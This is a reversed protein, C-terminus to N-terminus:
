NQNSDMGNHTQWVVLESSSVYLKVSTLLGKQVCRPFIHFIIPILLSQHRPHKLDRTFISMCPCLSHILNWSFMSFQLFICYLQCPVLQLNPPSHSENSQQGEKLPSSSCGPVLGWADPGAREREATQLKVKLECKIVRAAMPQYIGAMHSGEEGRAGDQLVFLLIDTSHCHHWRSRGYAWYRKGNASCMSGVWFLWRRQQCRISSILSFYTCQQGQFIIPM